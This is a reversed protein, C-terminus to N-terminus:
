ATPPPRLTPMAAFTEADVGPIRVVQVFKPARGNGPKEEHVQVVQVEPMSCSFRIQKLLSRVGRPQGALRFSHLVADMM